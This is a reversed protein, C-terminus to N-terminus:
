TRPWGYKNGPSTTKEIKFNILYWKHIKVILRRNDYISISRQCPFIRSHRCESCCTYISLFMQRVQLSGNITRYVLRRRWPLEMIRKPVTQYTIISKHGASSVTYCQLQFKWIFVCASLPKLKSKCKSSSKSNTGGPARLSGMWIHSLEHGCGRSNSLFPKSRELQANQRM